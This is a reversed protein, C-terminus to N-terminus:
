TWGYRRRLEASVADFRARDLVAGERRIEGDPIWLVRDLRVWSPRGSPDWDGSGVRWWHPDDDHHQRSSLMLALVADGGGSGVVLLPRDKGRRADEEFSVWAWVVEGPDARGDLQPAYSVRRPKARRATVAGRVAALLRERVRQRM